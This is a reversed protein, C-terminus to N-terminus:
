TTAVLSAYSVLAAALLPASDTWDAAYLANITSAAEQNRRTVLVVLDSRRPTLCAGVLDAITGNAIWPKLDDLVWTDGDRRATTKLTISDSGTPASFRPEAIRDPPIRQDLKRPSSNATGPKPVSHPPQPPTPHDNASHTTFAPPHQLPTRVQHPRPTSAPRQPHAHPRPTRSSPQWGLTGHDRKRPRSAVPAQQCLQLRRGHPPLPASDVPPASVSASRRPRRSGTFERHM